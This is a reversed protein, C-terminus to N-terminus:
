FTVEYGGNVTNVTLASNLTVNDLGGVLVNSLSLQPFPNTPCAIGRHDAQHDPPLDTLQYWGSAFANAVAMGAQGSIAGFPWSSEQLPLLPQGYSTLGRLLTPLWYKKSTTDNLRGRMTAFIFPVLGTDM